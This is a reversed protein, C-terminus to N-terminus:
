TVDLIVFRLFGLHNMFFRRVGGCLFFDACVRAFSDTYAEANRCHLHKKKREKRNLIVRLNSEFSFFHDTEDFTILTTVKLFFYSTLKRSLCSLWSQSSWWLSLFIINNRRLVILFIFHTQKKKVPLGKIPNDQGYVSKINKAFAIGHFQNLRDLDKQHVCTRFSQCYASKLIQNGNQM